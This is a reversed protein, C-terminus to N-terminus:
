NVTLTLAVAHSVGDTTGTVQLPYSGSGTTLTSGGGGGAGGTGSLPILRTSGCGGLGALAILAVLGACVTWRRRRRRSLGAPVAALCFLVPLSNSGPISPAPSRMSVSVGTQLTVSVPVTGGMQATSPNVTCATNAPAGTCTLKVAGTLGTLSTLNLAYTAISGSSVAIATPGNAALAFDVGTGSLTVVQTGTNANDVLTLTGTRAGPQTPMFSLLLTCSSAPQLALGCTSSLLHFDGAVTSSTIQLPVGGNNTLVVPTGPSTSSVGMRGLDLVSPSLSIGPPALGAGSLAVTQTRFQDTVLLSATRTGTATPVFVVNVTCSSHAPLTAGCSNTAAFDSGSIVATILTLSVDGANTLLVPQPTSTTGVQQQGFTLATASLTDTAPSQGTGALQATQTGASDTVTLVGTRTGSAKPTFSISLSCGTQSPLSSGCTNAVLTFDGTLTPPQLTATNGGTNSLTIIKPPSTQNVGTSGFNLQVPTLVMSAPANGTGSLPVTVQGGSINAFVTLLGSRGGTATPTFRVSLTCTNGVALTQGSCTDTEVFDGSVIISTVTAPSSGYSTLTIALVDSQTGVPQALFTLVSPTASLQPQQATHATLLPTQWIGRGYTGARLLGVRGDGTPVLPAAELQTIPANPLGSSLKGWCLQSTCTSINQTM